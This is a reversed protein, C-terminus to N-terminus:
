VRFVPVGAGSGQSDSGRVIGAELNPMESVRSKRFAKPVRPHISVIRAM